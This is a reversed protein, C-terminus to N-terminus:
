RQELTLASRRSSSTRRPPPPLSSQFGCDHPKGLPYSGWPLKSPNSKYQLTLSLLLVLRSNSHFSRNQTFPQFSLITRLSKHILERNTQKNRQKKTNQTQKHTNTNPQNKHTKKNVDQDTLEITECCVRLSNKTDLKLNVAHHHPPWAHVCPFFM